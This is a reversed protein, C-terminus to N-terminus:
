CVVWKLSDVSCRNTFLQYYSVANELPSENLSKSIAPLATNLITADLTQMFIGNCWDLSIESSKNTRDYNLGM